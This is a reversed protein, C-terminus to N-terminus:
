GARREGETIRRAEGHLDMARHLARSLHGRLEPDKVWAAAEDVGLLACIVLSLKLERAVAEPYAPV